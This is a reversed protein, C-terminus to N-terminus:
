FFTVPPFRVYPPEYSSLFPLVLSGDDVMAISHDRGFSLEIGFSRSCPIHLIDELFNAGGHHAILEFYYKSDILFLEGPNLINYVAASHSQFTYGFPTINDYVTIENANDPTLDFGTVGNEACLFTCSWRLYFVFLWLSRLFLNRQRLIPTIMLEVVAFITTM